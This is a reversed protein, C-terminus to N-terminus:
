ALPIRVEFAAGDVGKLASMPAAQLSGGHAEAIRRAIYLGIGLNRDSRLHPSRQSAFLQFLPESNEPLPEGENEIRVWSQDDTRGVAVNVRGYPRTHDFANQLIKDLMQVLRAENGIVPVSSDIELALVRDCHAQALNRACTEVVDALDVPEFEEEALAGELSTAESASQLIRSVVGTSRTARELLQVVRPPPEARKAMDLSSQIGIMQNKLEHRLFGAFFELWGLREERAERVEASLAASRQRERDLNRQLAFGRRARIESLYIYLLAVMSGAFLHANAAALAVPDAKEWGFGVNLAVLTSCYVFAAPALRIRLAGASFVVVLLFAANGYEYGLSILGLVWAIAASASILVFMLIWQHLWLFAPRFTTGWALMALVPWGLRLPLTAPLAEPDMALDWITFSAYLVAAVPLFVRAHDRCDYAFRVRYAAEDEKSLRPWKWFSYM